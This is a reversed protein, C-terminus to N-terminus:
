TSWCRISRCFKSKEVIGFDVQEYPPYPEGRCINSALFIVGRKVKVSLKSYRDLLVLLGPLVGKTDLVIDRLNLSDGVINALAGLVHEVIRETPSLLLEALAPLVNVRVLFETEQTDGSAINMIIWSAEVQLDPFRDYMPQLLKILHPVCGTQIFVRTESEDCHVLTKRLIRVENLLEKFSEEDLLRKVNGSKEKIILARQEKTMAKYEAEDGEEDEVQLHRKGEIIKQLKEKRIEVRFQERKTKMVNLGTELDTKQNM